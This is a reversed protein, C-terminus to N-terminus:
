ALHHSINVKYKQDNTKLSPFKIIIFYKYYNVDIYRLQSHVM